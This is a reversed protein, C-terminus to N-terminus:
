PTSASTRRRAGRWRRQAADHFGADGPIGRRLARGEQDRRFLDRRRDAQHPDARRGPPRRSNRRLAERSVLGIVALGYIPEPSDISHGGAVPFEPRRRLGGRRRAPHRPDHRDADQRDAHRPHRPRLDAQRGDCLRRLARQDRRDPRLRLPRRGDAHLLRHDRRHEDRRRPALGRRRRRDGHRRDSQRLARGGASRRSARAAGVACAQLRLRRRPRAVDPPARFREHPTGGLSSSPAPSHGPRTPAIQWVPRPSALGPRLPLRGTAALAIKRGSRLSKM